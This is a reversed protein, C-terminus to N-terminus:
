LCPSPFAPLSPSTVPAPPLVKGRARKERLPSLLSSPAKRPPPITSPPGTTTKAVALSKSQPNETKRSQPAAGEKEIRGKQKNTRGKNNNNKKRSARTDHDNRMRVNRGLGAKLDHDLDPPPAPERDLLRRPRGFRTSM